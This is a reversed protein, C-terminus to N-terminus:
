LFSSSVIILREVYEGEGEEYSNYLVKIGGVNNKFLVINPLVQSLADKILVALKYFM